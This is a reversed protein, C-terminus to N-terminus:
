DEKPEEIHVELVDGDSRLFTVSYNDFECSVMTAITETNATLEYEKCEGCRLKIVQEEDTMRYLECLKM